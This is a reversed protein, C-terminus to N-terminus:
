FQNDESITDEQNYLKNYNNNLQKDKENIYNLLLECKILSNSILNKDILYFVELYSERKQVVNKFFKDFFYFCILNVILIIGILICNIKLNYKFRNYM